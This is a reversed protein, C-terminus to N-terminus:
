DILMSEEVRSILSFLIVVIGLMIMTYNLSWEASRGILPYTIAISITGLMSVTSMVTARKNSPIYKNMYSYFLPRRSIGFGTLVIVAGMFIYVHNAIGALILMTGAIISSFVIYRRKGSLKEEFWSYKNMVVIQSLVLLSHVIGFYVIKVGYQMLMPQYLWIISWCLAHIIVVDLALLKLVRHTTFFKVGDKLIKLYKEQKRIVPPEKLTLSVIFSVFMPAALFLMTERLGIYQAILSGIPAAIMLAILHMSRTKAFFKKSLKEQKIKKLTDYILAENAGSFLASGLAWIFEGLLFVAFIPYSAYVLPAIVATFCALSISTKRGFRDAITGTPIELLFVWMMFWSQLLFVQTLSIGAWVTFFPVLVGGIFHLGRFFELLYMKWLNDKYTSM